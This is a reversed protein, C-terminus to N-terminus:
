ALRVGAEGKKRATAGMANNMGTSESSDLVKRAERRKEEDIKKLHKETKQKGSGKGHFQHSLHKFAEKQDMSRGFEDIYKLQVNPKYEKNFIETMLKSEHQDRAKNEWRANEERERASMRDLKGSLRDRERQQRARLEALAERHQKETLFRQRDRHLANIDTKEPASKLLGRQSLFSLTAGIGNNLTAEEDLGTETLDTAAPTSIERKLRDEPNALNNYPREMDFDGDDEDADATPSEMKVEPSRKRTEATAKEQETSTQLNAVFESTEDIVLGGEEVREDEDMNNQEEERLQKALDEPRIRKRQKLTAKRQRALSAQLDDDDVFSKGDGWSKPLADKSDVHEDVEMAEGNPEAGKSIEAPFIDDEDAAKQRTSKAKKKKPKRVKLEQEEKYDSIPSDQLINLNISQAKLREGVARRTVEREEATSGQGDLTFRKRKKGDITEDYHKLIQSEGTEAAEHIDYVPKKKKVNMRDELAEREKLDLNELEDGEEENEDITADKLTLVQEGGTEFDGIEHGVRVGALDEARYDVAAQEREELEKELKKLRERELKRQRQKQQRLWTRTDLDAKEDDEGLGKGDLKSFRQAADRAKKIAENRAERQLKADKEAQLKKWNDYGQAQRSDLTSGQDEEGSSSEDDKSEKFAPGEGPVALPQLGLAVRIKNTEQISIADAM